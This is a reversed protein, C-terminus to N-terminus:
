VVIARSLMPSGDSANLQVGRPAQPPAQTPITAGSVRGLPGVAHPRM